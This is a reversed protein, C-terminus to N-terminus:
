YAGIDLLYGSMQYWLEIERQDTEANTRPFIGGIGNRDYTRWIVRDLVEDVRESWFRKSDNFGYLGINKIMLWFWEAPEGEAEFMLRRSLGILLELMSCGIEEFHQTEKWGTDSLFERRLDKGDAIRNDDNPVFWVFEKHFMFKLLKYHSKEVSCVLGCLWVFYLDDLEVDITEM